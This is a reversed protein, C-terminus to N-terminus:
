SLLYVDRAHRLAELLADHEPWRATRITYTGRGITAELTSRTTRLDLVRQWVPPEDRACERITRLAAADPRVRVEALTTRLRYHTWLTAVAIAGPFGVLLYSLAPYGQLAAVLAGIMVPLMCVGIPRVLARGYVFAPPTTGPHDVSRFIQVADDSM